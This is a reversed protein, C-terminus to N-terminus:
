RLAAALQSLTLDEVRTLPHARHLRSLVSESPASIRRQRVLEHMSESSGQICNNMYTDIQRNFNAGSLKARHRLKNCLKYLAAVIVASMVLGDGVSERSDCLMFM